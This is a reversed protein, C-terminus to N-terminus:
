CCSQAELLEPRRSLGRNSRSHNKPGREESNGEQNSVNLFQQAIAREDDALDEIAKRLESEIASDTGFVVKGEPTAL